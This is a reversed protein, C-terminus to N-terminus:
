QLVGLYADVQERLEKARRIQEVEKHKAQHSTLQSISEMEKLLEERHQISEAQSWM